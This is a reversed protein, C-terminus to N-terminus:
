CKFVQSLLIAELEFEAQAISLVRDGTLVLSFHLEARYDRILLKFEPM